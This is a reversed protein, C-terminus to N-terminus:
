KWIRLRPVTPPDMACASGADSSGATASASSASTSTALLPEVRRTGAASKKSDVQVVVSSGSSNSVATCTGTHDPFQPNTTSSTARRLPSKASVPTTHATSTSPLPATVRDPMPRKPIPGVGIRPAVCLCREVARRGRIRVIELLDAPKRDGRAARRAVDVRRGLVACVDARVKHLAGQVSCQSFRPTASCSM